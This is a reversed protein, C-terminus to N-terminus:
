NKDRFYWYSWVWFVVVVVILAFAVFSQFKKQGVAKRHVIGMDQTQLEQPHELESTTMETVTSFGFPEFIASFKSFDERSLKLFFIQGLYVETRYEAKLVLNQYDPMTAEKEKALDKLVEFAVQRKKLESCVKDLEQPTFPGVEIQQEVSM